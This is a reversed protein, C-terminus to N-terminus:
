DDQAEGAIRIAADELGEIYSAPNWEREASTNNRLDEAAARLDTAIQKRVEAEIHPRIQDVIIPTLDQAEGIGINYALDQVLKAQWDPVTM